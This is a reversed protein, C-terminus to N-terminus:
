KRNRATYLLMQYVINIPCIKLLTSMNIMNKKQNRKENHRKPIAKNIYDNVLLELAAM